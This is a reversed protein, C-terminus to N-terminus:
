LAEKSIERYFATYAANVYPNLWLYGIGLTFICLIGWGIFSLGLCFLQGKHGDMMAKSARIAESPRMGPHELMIYPAMAYRYAAIIGPIVFLLSWLAIYIGQLLMLVFGDGFRDFKSFLTNVRPERGDHLDLLFQCYGQRVVGGIIFQVLALMSAIAALRIFLLRIELPMQRLVNESVRLELGANTGALLGGLLSAVLAAGVAVAWRGRLKERAIRRYDSAYM